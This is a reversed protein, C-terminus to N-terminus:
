QEIGERAGMGADFPHKVKQIESVYNALALVEAPPNRGTLVVELTQPKHQLFDVLMEKPLFGCSMAAAVEDLVLMRAHQACTIAQTFLAQEMCAMEKKEDESMQFSFKETPNGGFYTVNPLNRLMQVEGSAGSKLFQAIVIPEGYYACRLALGMAATTKGKGDGCYMHILGNM